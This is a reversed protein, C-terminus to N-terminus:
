LPATMLVTIDIRNGEVTQRVIPPADALESGYGLAKLRFGLQWM